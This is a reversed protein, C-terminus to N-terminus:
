KAISVNHAAVIAPVAGLAYGLGTAIKPHGSKAIQNVGWEQAIMSAVKSILLNIPDNGVVPNAETNGHKLGYLSSAIDAINGGAVAAYPWPGIANPDKTTQPKDPTVTSAYRDISAPDFIPM